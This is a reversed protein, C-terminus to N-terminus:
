QIGKAIALALTGFDDGPHYLVNSMSGGDWPSKIWYYVNTITEELTNTVLVSKKAIRVDGEIAERQGQFYAWEQALQIIQGVKQRTRKDIQQNQQYFFSGLLISSGVLILTIVIRM